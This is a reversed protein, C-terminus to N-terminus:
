DLKKMEGLANIFYSESTQIHKLVTDVSWQVNLNMAGVPSDSTGMNFVTPVTVNSNFTFGWAVQVLGPEITAYGIYKGKGAVSGGAVYVVRYVYDVVNVGFGNQFTVRFSQSRPAQWQELQNWMEVGKPLATAVMSTVNAVPRGLEIVNWVKKGMNIIQDLIVNAVDLQSSVEGLSLGPDAMTNLDQFYLKAEMSSLPTVKVSSIEYYRQDQTNTEASFAATATVTLLAALFFNKLHEGKTKNKPASERM